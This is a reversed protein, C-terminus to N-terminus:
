YFEEGGKNFRCESIVMDVDPMGIHDHIDRHDKAGIVSHIYYQVGIRGIRGSFSIKPDV